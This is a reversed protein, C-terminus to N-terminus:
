KIKVLKPIRDHYVAISDFGIQELTDAVHDFNSALDKIQHADSGVTIIKGGLEKYRKIIEINPHAESLGYRFGSTNIEIGKDTKILALLIEDLLEKFENYDIKNMVNGYNKIVYRIVYDLHGYVDFEQKYLKINLLVESLYAVVSEHPTLGEFFSKDYAMDKGCTIHSSGIIFDFKNDNVTSIILEFSEPRLGIEVGYNIKIEPNDIYKLYEKRYKNLDLTKLKTDIGIYDDYHETFTIEDINKSKAIDIYEQISSIGDHSINTHVHQDINIM